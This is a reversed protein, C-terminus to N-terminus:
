PRSTGNPPIVDAPDLTVDLEPVALPDAVNIQIPGYHDGAPDRHVLVCGRDIDVIWYEPVGWAAHAARKPGTDRRTGSQAVEVVLIVAERTPWSEWEPQGRVVVVDTEVDDCTGRRLGSQSRV